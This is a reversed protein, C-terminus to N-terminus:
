IQKKKNNKEIKLKNNSTCAFSGVIVYVDCSFRDCLFLFLQRSFSSLINILDLSHIFSYGPQSAALTEMLEIIM